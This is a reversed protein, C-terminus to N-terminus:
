LLGRNHLDEDEKIGNIAGILADCYNGIESSPTTIVFNLSYFGQVSSLFCMIRGFFSSNYDNIAALLELTLDDTRYARIGYVIFTTVGNDNVIWCDLGEQTLHIDFGKNNNFDGLRQCPVNREKFDMELKADASSERITKTAENVLGKLFGM